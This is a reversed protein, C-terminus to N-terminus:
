SDHTQSCLHGSTLWHCIRKKGGAPSTAEQVTLTVTRWVELSHRGSCGCDKLLVIRMAGHDGWIVMDMSCFSAAPGSSSSQTTNISPCDMYAWPREWNCGNCRFYINTSQRGVWSHQCFPDRPSTQAKINSKLHELVTQLRRWAVRSDPYPDEASQSAKDEEQM